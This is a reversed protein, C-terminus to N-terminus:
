SWWQVVNLTTRLKIRISQNKGLLSLHRMIYQNEKRTQASTRRARECVNCPAQSHTHTNTNHVIHQQAHASRISPTRASSNGDDGDNADDDDDVDTDACRLTIYHIDARTQLIRCVVRCCGTREIRCTRANYLYFICVYMCVYIRARMALVCPGALLMGNIIYHRKIRARERTYRPVFLWITLLYLKARLTIRLHIRHAADVVVVSYNTHTSKRCSHSSCACM